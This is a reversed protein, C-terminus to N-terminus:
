ESTWTGSLVAITGVRQSRDPDLDGGLVAGETEAPGVVAIRDRRDDAVVERRQQLALVAEGDLLAPVQHEAGSAGVAGLSERGVGDAGDVQREPVEDALQEVLRHIREDAALDAVPDGAVDGAVVDVPVDLAAELHELERSREAREVARARDVAGLLVDSLHAPMM